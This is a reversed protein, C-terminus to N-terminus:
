RKCETRYITNYFVYQVIDNVVGKARRIKRRGKKQEEAFEPVFFGRSEGM